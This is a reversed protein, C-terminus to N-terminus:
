KVLQKDLISVEGVCRRGSADFPLFILDQQCKLIEFGNGHSLNDLVYLQQKKGRPSVVLVHSCVQRSSPLLLLNSGQVFVGLEEHPIPLDVPCSSVSPEELRELDVLSVSSLALSGTESDEPIVVLFNELIHLQCRMQQPLPSGQFKVRRIAAQKNPVLLVGTFDLEMRENHPFLLIHEEMAKWVYGCRRGAEEEEELSESLSWTSWTQTDLAWAGELQWTLDDHVPFFFITSLLSVFSFKSPPPPPLSSSIMENGCVRLTLSRVNLVCASSIDFNREGDHPFIFCLEEVVECHCYCPHPTDLEVYCGQSYVRDEDASTLVFTQRLDLRGSSDCPFVCISDQVVVFACRCRLPLSGMVRLAWLRLSSLDMVMAFQLDCMGERNKPFLFLRTGVVIAACRLSAPVADDSVCRKLRLRPVLPSPFGCAHEQPMPEDRSPTRHPSVTPSLPHPQKPFAPEEEANLAEGGGEKGPPPIEVIGEQSPLEKSLAQAVDMRLKNLLDQISNEQTQLKEDVRELVNLSHRKQEEVGDLIGDQEDRLAGIIKEVKAIRESRRREEEFRQQEALNRLEENSMVKKFTEELAKFAEVRSEEALVRKSEAQQVMEWRQNMQGWESQLKQWGQERRQEQEERQKEAAQRKDEEQRAGMLEGTGEGPEETESPKLHPPERDELQKKLGVLASSLTAMEEAQKSVTAQLAAVQSKLAQLEENAIHHHGERPATAGEKSGKFLVESSKVAAPIMRGGDRHSRRKLSVPVAPSPGLSEDSSYGERSRALSSPPELNDSKDSDYATSYGGSSYGSSDVRSMGSMGGIPQHSYTGGTQPSSTVSSALSPNSSGNVSGSSKQNLPTRVVVVSVLSSNEGRRIGFRVITDDSSSLAETLYTGPKNTVLEGNFTCIVDGTLVGARDAPGGAQVNSVLFGGGPNLKLGMGVGLVPGVSGSSGSGRVVRLILPAGSPVDRRLVGLEVQTGKPGLLMNRLQALTAPRKGDISILLDNKLLGASEGPGGPKVSNIWFGRGEAVSVGAGIGFLADAAEAPGEQLHTPQSSRSIISLPKSQNAASWSSSTTVLGRTSTVGYSRRVSATSMPSSAPIAFQMEM